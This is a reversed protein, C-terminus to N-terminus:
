LREANEACNAYFTNMEAVPQASGDMEAVVANGVLGMDNIVEAQTRGSQAVAYTIYRMGLAAARRKFEADAAADDRMVFAMSIFACGLATDYSVAPQAPADQAPADQASVPIAFLTLAVPALLQRIM